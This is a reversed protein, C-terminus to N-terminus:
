KRISFVKKYTLCRWIWELPGFQFYSLWLKSLIIQVGFVLIAALLLESPSLTQYLSLGVSSFLILGIGSHMIYNTLAMRGVHRLPSLFRKLTASHYYCWAILWLYFLGMITDSIVMTKIFFPHFERYMATSPLIFLFLIRYVNSVIVISLMPIKIRIIWEKISYILQNKGFYLGLLFMSLAIPALISLLMPLNSLYDMVRLVLGEIYSGNRITTVIKDSPYDRLYYMPDYDFINFLFEAIQDYFPFVFLLISLCLIFTNSARILLITFLGLIAYLHIVDGPWLLVIHLVGFIFLVLMRRSLFSFTFQNKSHLKLAQMSIGLGFLFSFIPFFKTYFFLQFIRIALLDVDSTWQQNYSDQNAFVCNMVEINVVFIGFVAFGRFIDLLEIRRQGLTPQHNM